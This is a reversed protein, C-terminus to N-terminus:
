PYWRAVAFSTRKSASCGPLHEHKCKAAWHRFAKAHPRRSRPNSQSDELCCSPVAGALSGQQDKGPVMHGRGILSSDKVASARLELSLMHCGLCVPLLFANLHKEGGACDQTDSM